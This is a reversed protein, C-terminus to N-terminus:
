FVKGRGQLLTLLTIPGQTFIKTNQSQLRGETKYYSEEGGVELYSSITLYNRVSFLVSECIKDWCQFMGKYPIYQEM